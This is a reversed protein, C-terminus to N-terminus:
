QDQGQIDDRTEKHAKFSYIPKIHDIVTCTGELMPLIDELGKYAMPSEDLTSEDVSTSYIGEMQHKFEDMSLKEFAANRSLRRGAGHPASMNYDSNGKGLCILAGDKMSIPILVKEGEHASIAGKRIMMDDLDIYNHVTEFHEFGDISYEKGFYAKIILGAITMRNLHAYEAAIASDHLYDEFDQGELWALDKSVINLNKEQYEAKLDELAKQIESRRGEAKFTMIIEDRKRYYAGMDHNVVNDARDQYYEAIQKGLNRSGTHIVLYVTGDSARDLEIFHNGGGLTGISREIRKTDKLSRYCKLEQLEPFRVIRGEHVEHGAPITANVLEDFRPLNIDMKGLKVTLMGCNHVFVGAALAFNHYEDVQLCYTQKVTKTDVVSVVKHNNHEKKKHNYLGIPSKVKKGCIDCTYFANSIEKSKARGKESTNYKILYKAGRKGNEKFFEDLEEKPKEWLNKINEKAVKQKLPLLEPSYYGKKELTKKRRRKFEPDQFMKIWREQKKHYSAHERYNMSVLNEPTNNFMNGDVHHVVNHKGLEGHIAQFVIKHTANVKSHLPQPTVIEYGDRSQYTRYLPMLSENPKLEDARKYSGDRLMFLHDATCHITEGGSIRVELIKKKNGKIPIAHGPKIYGDKDRSYVWVPAGADYLEKLTKITGDLLPVKTDGTFCNIDVGVLNPCVRRGDITQTYGIVCGAGAHADPMIRIKEGEVFPANVLAEIQEKASDELLTAYIVAESHKGEIIIPEKM